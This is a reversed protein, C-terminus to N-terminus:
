YELLYNATEGKPVFVSDEYSTLIGNIVTVWSIKAYRNARVNTNLLLENVSAGGFTVFPGNEYNIRIEDSGNAPPVNKVHVRLSGYPALGVISRTMIGENKRSIDLRGCLREDIFVNTFGENLSAMGTICRPYLIGNGGSAYNYNYGPATTAIHYISDSHHKFEYEFWGNQDTYIKNRISYCCIGNGANRIISKILQVEANAIPEQTSVDIVYGNLYTTDGPIYEKDKKCTSLGLLIIFSIFFLNTKM